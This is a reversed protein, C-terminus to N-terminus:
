GRTAAKQPRGAGRRPTESACATRLCSRTPRASRRGLDPAVTVLAASSPAMTLAIVGGRIPLQPLRSPQQWSGDAAVTRGGLRVGSIARPSPATLTLTNAGRYGGGVHLSLAVARSGPPDEDVLVFRLAGHPGRLATVTLNPRRRPLITTHVPRNGALERALLLAYWEPQPQLAGDLLHAHSTACVPSYGACTAPAGQFNIGAAGAAMTQAIYSTAWLAAAFTNSVGSKGGCSV